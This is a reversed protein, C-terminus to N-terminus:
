RIGYIIGHAIFAMFVISFITSIIFDIVVSKTININKKDVLPLTILGILIYCAVAIGLSTM